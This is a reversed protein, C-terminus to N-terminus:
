PRGICDLVIALLGGVLGFIAIAELHTGALLGYAGLTASAAGLPWWRVDEDM